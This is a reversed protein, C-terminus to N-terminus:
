EISENQSRGHALWTIIGLVALSSIVYKPLNLDGLYSKFTSDSIYDHLTSLVTLAAAGGMQCYGWVKTWSKYWFEKFLNLM